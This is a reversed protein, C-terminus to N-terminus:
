KIVKLERYLSTYLSFAIKIEWKVFEETLNMFKANFNAGLKKFSNYSWSIIYEGILGSAYKVKVFKAIFM